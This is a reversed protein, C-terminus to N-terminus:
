QILKSNQIPRKIDEEKLVVEKLSLVPCPCPVHEHACSCLSRKKKFDKTM